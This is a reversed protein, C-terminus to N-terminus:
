LKDYSRRAVAAHADVWAFARRGEARSVRKIRQPDGGCELLNGAALQRWGQTIPQNELRKRATRHRRPPVGPLDEPPAEAPRDEPLEGPRGPPSEAPNDGPIVPPEVGPQPTGVVLKYHRIAASGRIQLLMFKDGDVTGCDRPADGCGHEFGNM